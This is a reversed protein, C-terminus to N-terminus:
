MVRSGYYVQNSRAASKCFVIALWCEDGVLLKDQDGELGELIGAVLGQTRSARSGSRGSSTQVGPGAATAWAWMWM